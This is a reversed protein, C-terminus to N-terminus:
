KKFTYPGIVTGTFGGASRTSLFAIDVDAGLTHRDSGTAYDFRAKGGEAKLTLTVSGSLTDLPASAALVEEPTGARTYLAVVPKGAINAIGFFLYSADSQLAALGARDGDHDPSYRLTTSITANHHQQRRAVFAPVGFKDGLAAGGELVLDGNEIKYVPEKPTRVGVWQLGLTKGDFTDVYSFNGTTPLAEKAQAPLNPKVAAYPIPEGAALVQPWGDKWSVPLLFTERGINYMGDKYPRTALFVAWWEGNQAQVFDAHGASTIPNARRPDLGRQSLIPNHEYPVYPGLLSQSRFVVESHNDGTGGEAAILYYYDGNKFIHPGEIWSPKQTIDVGGNVIQTSEGVMKGARWNYEQVWIARHGSYRPPENPARNNVIYAKDGEWFMSPDIGEFPLWIPDSWPGAPDKATIVFNGKCAVCTNVIYFVGDHYSIDPAFVGESVAKRALDIQSTRDIANGIQRWNVLDKSASVPIGPFHSFSSNVLYYTDGVRTIAPDPYYGALIPNQYQGSAVTIQEANRGEYTFQEFRAAGAVVPLTMAAFGITAFIAKGTM